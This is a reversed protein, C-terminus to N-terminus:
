KKRKSKKKKKDAKRSEKRELNYIKVNRRHLLENLSATIIGALLFGLVIGSVIRIGVETTDLTFNWVLLVSFLTCPILLIGLTGWSVYEIDKLSKM